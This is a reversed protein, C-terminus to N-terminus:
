FDPLFPMKRKLWKKLGDPNLNGDSLRCIANWKDNQEKLVSMMGSDTTIHRKKKLEEVEDKVLKFLVDKVAIIDYNMEKLYKAYEKAKKM